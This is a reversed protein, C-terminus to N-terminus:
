ICTKKYIGVGWNWNALLTQICLNYEISKNTELLIQVSKHNLKPQSEPRRKMVNGNLNSQLIYCPYNLVFLDSYVLKLWKGALSWWFSFLSLVVFIMKPQSSSVQVKQIGWSLFREGRQHWTVKIGVWSVSTILSHYWSVWSLCCSSLMMTRALLLVTTM